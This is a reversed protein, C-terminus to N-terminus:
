KWIQDFAWDAGFAGLIGGVFVGLPVCAVAAPGCALGAAGLATAGAIGGGMAVGENAAARVKDEATAVHYVAIAITLLFLGRGAHGMWKAANTAKGQPSGSQKVVHRWVADKQSSSLSSFHQGYLNKAYKTELERLTKGERKMFTAIAIGLSSSKGRQAEMITNRMASAQEAAVKPSLQNKNVKSALDASMTKTQKIYEQRVKSDPIVQNAFTIATTELKALEQNLFQDETKISM